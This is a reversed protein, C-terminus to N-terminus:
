WFMIWSMITPLSPSIVMPTLLSTKMLWSQIHRSSQFSSNLPLTVMTSVGVAFAPSTSALSTM